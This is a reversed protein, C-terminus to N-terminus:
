YFSSLLNHIVFRQVFTELSYLFFDITELGFTVHCLRDKALQKIEFMVENVRHLYTCTPSLAISHWILM